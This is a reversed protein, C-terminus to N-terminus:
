IIKPITFNYIDLLDKSSIICLDNSFLSEKEKSIREIHKIVLNILYQDFIYKNELMYNYCKDQYEVIKKDYPKNELERWNKIPFAGHSSNLGYDKMFYGLLNNFMLENALFEKEKPIPTFNQQM